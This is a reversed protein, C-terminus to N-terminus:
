KEKVRIRMGEIAVDLPTIVVKDGNNLGKTVVVVDKKIFSIKVKKSVLKNQEDVTWVISEKDKIHVAQFPLVIAKELVPGYILVKVYDNLLFYPAYKPLIKIIVPILGTKPDIEGGIGIIKGWAPKENLNNIIKAKMNPKIWKVEKPSVYVKVQVDETSYIKALTQMPSVYQGIDVFKQITKGSFPAYIETKELNLLAKQLNIEAAKLQAKLAKIQPEKKVLPPPPASSVIKWEKISQEAQTQLLKLDNKIKEVQAKASKVALLYEKYDLKFLLEGKEFFQGEQMKPSVYIIKGAVESVLSIVKSTEVQGTLELVIQYPSYYVEKVEVLPIFKPIRKKKVPPRTHFLYVSIGLAGIIILFAIIIQIHRKSM